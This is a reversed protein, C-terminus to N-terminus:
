HLWRRWPLMQQGGQEWWVTTGASVRETRCGRLASSREGEVVMFLSRERASTASSRM